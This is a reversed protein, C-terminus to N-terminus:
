TRKETGQVAYVFSNASSWTDERNGEEHAVTVAHFPSKTPEMIFKARLGKMVEVEKRVDNYDNACTFLCPFGLKLLHKLDGIWSQQLEKDGSGYGCNFGCVLTAVALPPAGEGTGPQAQGRLAEKLGEKCTGRFCISEGHAGLPRRIMHSTASIEPGILWLQVIPTSLYHCIEQFYNTELLVREEARASVGVALIRLLRGRGLYGAHAVVGGQFLQSLAWVASLPYSLADMMQPQIHIKADSGNTRAQGNIGPAPELTV